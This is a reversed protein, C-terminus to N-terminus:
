GCRESRLIPPHPPTGRSWPIFKDDDDIFAHCFSRWVVYAKVGVRRAKPLMARLAYFEAPPSSIPVEVLEYRGVAFGIIANGHQAVANEMIGVFGLDQCLKCGPYLSGNINTVVFVFLTLPGLRSFLQQKPGPRARPGLKVAPKVDNDGSGSDGEIHDAM